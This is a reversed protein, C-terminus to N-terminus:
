SIWRIHTYFQKFPNGPKWSEIATHQSYQRLDLAFVLTKTTSCDYIALVFCVLFFVLFCLNLSTWCNGVDESYFPLTIKNLDILEHQLWYPCYGEKYVCLAWSSFFVLLESNPSSAFESDLKFIEWFTDTSLWSPRSVSQVVCLERTTMTPSDVSQAV